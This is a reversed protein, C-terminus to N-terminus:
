KRRRLALGGFGAIGSLLTLISSPEPVPEVYTKFFLDSGNDEIWEGSAYKNFLAGSQYGEPWCIIYSGAIECGSGVNEPLRAVELSIALRQGCMVFLRESAGINITIPDNDSAPVATVGSALVNNSPYGDSSTTIVEWTLEPPNSEWIMWRPFEIKCLTGTIGVTFTQAQHIDSSWTGEDGIVAWMSTLSDPLCFDQDLNPAAAVDLAGIACIALILLVCFIKM